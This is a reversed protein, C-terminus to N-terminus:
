NGSEKQNYTSSVKMEQKKGMREMDLRDGEFGHERSRPLMSDSFTDIDDRESTGKEYGM